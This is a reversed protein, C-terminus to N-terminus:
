RRYQLHQVIDFGFVNVILDVRGLFSLDRIQGDTFLFMSGLDILNNM